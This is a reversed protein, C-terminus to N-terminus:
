CLRAPLDARRCQAVPARHGAVQDRGRRRVVCDRGQPREVGPQRQAARATLAGERHRIEVPAHALRGQSRILQHRVHGKGCQALLPAPDKALQAQPACVRDRQDVRRRHQRKVAGRHGPRAYRQAAHRRRDDASRLRFLHQHALHQVIPADVTGGAKGGFRFVDSEGEKGIRGNVITPLRLVHAATFTDNPETEVCEPFEDVAYPVFNTVGAPSEWSMKRNGPIGGRTDLGIETFPLNWGTVEATVSTDKQGGLPFITEVWPREAISIRYVFDERGRDIADRVVLEYEGTKPAEFLLVPDPRFRYDDAFRIENGQDDHISVTAQFWGPVADAMYPVLHRAQTEIVLKQGEEARFRFRDVDRVCVQGNIVVPATVVEQRVTRFDNPEVEQVEPLVDVVFVMPNTLGLGTGLRIERDGPPADPAITFELEVAEAIQPSEQLRRTRDFFFETVKRLERLTMKDLDVLLPHEPLEVEEPEDEPRPRPKLKRPKKGQAALRLDSVKQRIAHQTQRRIERLVEQRIRQTNGHRKVFKATVGEGTVHVQRVKWLNQGGVIVKVTTGQQGGARCLYGIHPRREAPAGSATGVLAVIGAVALLRVLAKM